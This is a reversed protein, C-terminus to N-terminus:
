KFNLFHIFLFFLSFSRAILATVVVPNAGPTFLAVRTGGVEWFYFNFQFFFLKPAGVSAGFQGAGQNKQVM